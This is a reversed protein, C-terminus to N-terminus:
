LVRVIQDLTVTYEEDEYDSGYFYSGNIEEIVIAAGNILVVVKGVRIGM